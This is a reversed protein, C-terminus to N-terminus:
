QMSVNWEITEQNKPLCAIAGDKISLSPDPIMLAPDAEIRVGLGHCDPCCGLPNNFSFLRPELPPITFGCIPCSQHESYLTEKGNIDITVYGNAFDLATRLSNFLRDDNEKNLILRDIAFAITHKFNKDLVPIEQYRTM